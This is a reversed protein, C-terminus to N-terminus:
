IMCQFFTITQIVSFGFGATIISQFTGLAGNQLNFLLSTFIFCYYRPEKLSEVIHSFKFDRTIVVANDLKRNDVAKEEEPTLRLMKSKPDDVLLFFCFFGFVVTVSGLIIM